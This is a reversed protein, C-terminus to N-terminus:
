IGHLEFLLTVQVDPTDPFLGRPPAPFPAAANVASCAAEDLLVRRSTRVVQVDAVTGDPLVTFQVTVRGTLRRIRAADPYRKNREIRQRVMTLYDQPTGYVAAPAAAVPASVAPVAVTGVEALTAQPVRTLPELPKLVPRAVRPVQPQASAPTERPRIRPRPIARQTASGLSRIALTIRTITHRQYVDAIYGLVVLHVCLSLCLMWWMLGNGPLVFKRNM